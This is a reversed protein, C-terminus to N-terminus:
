QQERAQQSESVSNRYFDATCQEQQKQGLAQELFRSAQQCESGAFGKTEVQSSGDPSVILEITKL